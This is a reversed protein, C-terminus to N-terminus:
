VRDYSGYDFPCAFSYSPPLLTGSFTYYIILFIPHLVM